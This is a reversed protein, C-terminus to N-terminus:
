CMTPFSENKKYGTTAKEAIILACESTSAVSHSCAELRADAAWEGCEAFMEEDIADM